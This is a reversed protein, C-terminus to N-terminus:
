MNEAGGVLAIRTDGALMQQYAEVIVQFGTGCLRNVGLAPRDEPIGLRLGIHRPSYISDPASHIVNGFITHDIESPAVQAQELAARSAAIALDTPNVDKLSGGYSGFPTRKGALFVLTEKAM